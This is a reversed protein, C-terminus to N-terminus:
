SKTMKYVRVYEVEMRQPFIKDDVGKQGGWDGGIALNLLLHFPKDYPWYQWSYENRSDMNFYEKDDIMIKLGKPTWELIYNHFAESCDSIPTTATLQTNKPWNNLNTHSSFHIVGQDFGVHEMIDIEGNDPWYVDGYSQKTPLMWIAPWTGVGKPLKARIEFRGYTWDAKNKTVMRASTYIGNNSRLAEIILKGSEIRANEANKTYVELEHNGWGSGGLDYGWKTTEPLGDKDFEDQWIPTKEFGYIVEPTPTTVVPTTTPTVVTEKGGCAVLLLLVIITKPFKIQRNM